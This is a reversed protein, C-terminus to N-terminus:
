DIATDLNAFDWSNTTKLALMMEADTANENSELFLQKVSECFLTPNQSVYGIKERYDILRM